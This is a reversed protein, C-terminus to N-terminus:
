KSNFKFQISELTKDAILTPQIHMTQSKLYMEQMRFERDREEQRHQNESLKIQWDLRDNYRTVGTIAWIICVIWYAVYILFANGIAFWSFMMLFIQYLTYQQFLLIVLITPVIMM